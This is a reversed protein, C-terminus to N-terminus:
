FYATTKLLFVAWRSSLSWTPKNDNLAPSLGATGKMFHGELKVLWNSTIDFRLTGALDHQQNERGERHDTNPFYGAYYSGAQLWPIFRYAVMVYYRENATWPLPGLGPATLTSNRKTHWRGYEAAVLWDHAAYEVSGMWLVGPIELHGTYQPGTLGQTDASIQLFQASGGLRLGEVPLEYMLRGGALYDFSVDRPVYPLGPTNAVDFVITGGYLRYELAGAAAFQLYGYVEFGTQALLFNRNAVPYTSQPLLVPLRAQDVDNIENYLGFPLKVRGARIGLWDKWRYDLYFWDLKANYAGTPVFGGGFLQVGLRLRDSVTKTFNIAAETLDFTGKTSNTVLYDNRLTDIFGQSVFGHVEIGAITNEEDADALAPRAMLLLAAALTLRLSLM